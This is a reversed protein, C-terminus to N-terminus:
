KVIYGAAEIIKQGRNSEIERVIKSANSDEPENKRLIACYETTIPYEGNKITENNPEVGNITLVKVGENEKNFLVTSHYYSYGISNEGDDENAINKLIEEANEYSNEKVKNLLEKEKMVLSLIESQFGSNDTKQFVKIRANKGNVERWNNIEGSYIDGIEDLSLNDVSNNKNVFFVLGEKAIPIVELEINKEKAYELEEESPKTGILLDIEGDILKIYGNHNDTYNIDSVSNGTFEKFFADAMDKTEISTDFKPYEELSYVKTSSAEIDNVSTRNAFYEVMCILGYGIIIISIVIFIIRLIIKM